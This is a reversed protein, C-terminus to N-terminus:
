KKTAEYTAYQQDSQFFPENWIDYSFVTSLLGRDATKIWTVVDTWFREAATIYATSMFVENIGDVNDPRPPGASVVPGYSAPLWQSSIMVYVDNAAARALFDLVNRMYRADLGPDGSRDGMAQSNLFVRVVNYGLRRM